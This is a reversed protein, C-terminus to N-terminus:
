ELSNGTSSNSGYEKIKNNIVKSKIIGHWTEVVEEKDNLLLITPLSIVDYKEAIEPNDVINIDEIPVNIPNKKLESAVVKCQGCCPSYFKM